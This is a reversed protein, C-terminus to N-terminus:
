IADGSDPEDFVQRPKSMLNFMEGVKNEEEENLFREDFDDPPPSKPSMKPRVEENSDVAMATEISKLSHRIGELMGYIHARTAPHM